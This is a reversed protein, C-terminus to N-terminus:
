RPHARLWDLLKNGNPSGWGAVASWGTGASFGPVNAVGNNGSTIPRLINAPGIEQYLRPTFHGLDHPLGQNLLVILGAWLPTSMSTGGVVVPNGNIILQYGTEPAANATVDPIGRGSGGDARWPLKVKRQWDPSPISSSVGGGSARGDGSNWVTESVIAGGDAKLTTGGVALVSPSSAPFDVHAKGDNVGDTVAGDGAAVVVTIGAAAAAKLAINVQEIAVRTWNSEPAGWSISLVSVRDRTAAEIAQLFGFDTNPAFYVRIRAKPAIAGIVEIDGEVQGNASSHGDPHNAGGAVPVPVVMPVPIHLLAFYRELDAKRYGGELEIVGISKGEGTLNKPFDYLRAIEPITYGKGVPLSGQTPLSQWSEHDGPLTNTGPFNNIFKATAQQIRVTNDAILKQYEEALITFKKKTENLDRETDKATKELEAGLRHAEQITHNIDFGLAFSGIVLVFGITAAVFKAYYILGRDLVLLVQRPELREIGPLETTSAPAPLLLSTCHCCKIAEDQIQERCFPCPKM